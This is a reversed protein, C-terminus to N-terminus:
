ENIIKIYSLGISFLHVIRKQKVSPMQYNLYILLIVILNFIHYKTLPILYIRHDNIKRRHARKSFNNYICLFRYNM